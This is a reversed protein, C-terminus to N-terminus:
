VAVVCHALDLNTLRQLEEVHFGYSPVFALDAVLHDPGDWWELGGIDVNRVLARWARDVVGRGDRVLPRAQGGRRPAAVVRTSNHDGEWRPEGM